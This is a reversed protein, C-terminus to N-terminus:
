SYVYRNGQNLLETMKQKVFEDNFYEAILICAEINMILYENKTIIKKFCSSYLEEINCIRPRNEYINCLNNVLYRCVGNGRDYESLIPIHKLM